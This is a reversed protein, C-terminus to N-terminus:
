GNELKIQHEIQKANLKHSPKFNILFPINSKSQTMNIITSMALDSGIANWSKEIRKQYNLQM